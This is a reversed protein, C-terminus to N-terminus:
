PRSMFDLWRGPSAICESFCCDTEDAISQPKHSAVVAVQEPPLALGLARGRPPTSKEGFDEVDHVDAMRVVTRLRRRRCGAADLSRV